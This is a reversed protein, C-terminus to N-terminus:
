RKNARVKFFLQPCSRQQLGYQVFSSQLTSEYGSGKRVRLRKAFFDEARRLVRALPAVQGIYYGNTWGGANMSNSTFVLRPSRAAKLVANM